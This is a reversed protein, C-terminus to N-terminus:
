GINIRNCVEYASCKKQYKALKIDQKLKLSFPLLEVKRLVNSSISRRISIICSNQLTRPQKASYELCQILSLGSMDKDIHTTELICNRLSSEVDARPQDVREIQDSVISQYMAFWNVSAYLISLAEYEVNRWYFQVLWTFHDRSLSKMGFSSLLMNMACITYLKHLDIHLQTHLVYVSIDADMSLLTYILHNRKQSSCSYVICNSCKTVQRDGLEDLDKHICLLARILRTRMATQSANKGLQSDIKLITRLIRIM